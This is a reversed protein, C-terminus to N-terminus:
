QNQRLLNVHLQYRTADYRVESYEIAAGTEDRTIREIVLVAAPMTLGFKLCDEPTALQASISQHGANIRVGNQELFGYIYQLANPQSTIRDLDVHFPPLIYSKDHFYMVDDVRATRELYLIKRGPSVGLTNAVDDPCKVEQITNVTMTVDYGSSRLEESFGYLITATSQTYQEAVFTGKGQKRVIFGSSVLDGVAQRVTTRSVEFTTALEAESPLQQGPMWVGNRIQEILQSKLQKYLPVSERM